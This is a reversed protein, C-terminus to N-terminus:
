QDTQYYYKCLLEFELSEMALAEDDQEHDMGSIHLVGHVLLLALEDEITGRHIGGLNKKANKDAITPCIFIEGLIRPVDETLELDWSIPFSIVDTPGQKEMYTANLEAIEAETVFSVYCEANGLVGQSEILIETFKQWRETNALEIDSSKTLFVKISM